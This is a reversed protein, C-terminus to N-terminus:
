GGVLMLPEEDFCEPVGETKQHDRYRPPAPSAVVCFAGYEDPLQQWIAEPRLKDVPTYTAPATNLRAGRGVRKEFLPNISV